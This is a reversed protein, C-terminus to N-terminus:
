GWVVDISPKDPLARSARLSGSSGEPVAAVPVGLRRELYSQAEVFGDLVEKSSAYPLPQLASLRKAFQGLFKALADKPVEALESSGIVGDIKKTNALINYATVKWSEAVVINVQKVAKGRNAEMKSTLAIANSIDTITREVMQEVYEVGDNILSDNAAPWREQAALSSNGLRHWVEEAFHPMIPALMLTMTDMFERLVVQNDGGRDLYRKLEALSNYYAETYAGRYELRDMYLTVAKVKSNLRSYLWYDIYRLEIGGMLGAKGALELIFENKSNISAVTDTNFETETDLDAGAIEIMRMPDSGYKEVGDALPVINGLSKSMKQGEYNVMGNVVIQKPAFEKPLLSVHNFIYMVLHNYILDPASHRSTETYWYHLSDHCRKLVAEDIGTSKAVDTPNGVSSIVYDFFEPKLAEPSAGATRLIHDFTYFVMYITSDSLSEIIHSPNLPFKTGLGQAREAARADIWDIVAEFTGMYKEPRVRISKLAERVEGKWKEDGYNIFWQDRVINVVVKYGCRCVVPEANSIEYLAFAKGAGIMDRKLMDRAESEKTGAYKGVLMVGGKSEERYALKTAQELAPEDSASTAGVAEMYAFAPVAANPATGGTGAAAVGVAAEVSILRRYEIRPLDYGGARLRELAAYDFPAHSPVSMVVGTGVDGKVFFGPLVPVEEGTEPNIARKKLLDDASVQELPEIKFQMGLIDKAERSIYCPEGNLNVREYQGDKKVFLNTVGYITEPRYTACLFYTDSAADKFKIAMIEEIKPQVDGKTDHQGVASNENVCWGVPHTGQVLLGKEKLKGFQWEILKSFMPETSVFRRRWDIGLGARRFGAEQLKIMYDSIYEPSSMKQIDKEDIHFLKLEDILEKDNKAIRKAFAVVPTGTAHFGLPYLVNWGRMRMYRAYTDATGYTRLHGIHPPSNVYPIAATVLMGKRDDPEPEFIKADAWAKQWRAEIAKYDIMLLCGLLNALIAHM